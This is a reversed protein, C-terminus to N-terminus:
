RYAVKADEDGSDLKLGLDKLIKAAQALDRDVRKVVGPGMEAAEKKLEKHHRYAEQWIPIFRRDIVGTGCDGCNGKAYIGSAGCGEDQALCWSHGTSRINVRHSTDSLLERRGEFDHARLEKIRDAAGGALPEDKELWQAVVGAKYAMLESLIDDYLAADQLPNSGYLQTMNITSHKFQEKLFLMDGLRHRVFTYAYLRRMQHPALKWDTGAALAFRSLITSWGMGSVPVIGGQGNGLFLKRTNSRATDLWQLEKATLQGEQSEMEAIQEALRQRYPQSWRELIRLINHGMAPMLYDVRGKKTKHEVSAVWHFTIDNKLETRGAGVEISSLESSRMGTLVGLLYFCANRISTVESKKFSSHEGRDREDMFGEARGLIGEAYTFLRQAVEVPILPTLAVKRADQGSQGTMGALESASSEPWPHVQLSGDHEYRFQYLLEVASFKSLMSEPALKAQRQAHVFNAVHISQVDRLSKLGLSGAFRCFTSLQHFTKFLSSIGPAHRGPRGVKWYRYLVNQCAERYSEAIVSWDLRKKYDRTNPTTVFPWMEWVLDKVRSLVVINGADNLVASVVVNGREEASLEVLTVPQEALLGYAKGVRKQARSLDPFEPLEPLEPAAVKKAAIVINANAKKLKAM